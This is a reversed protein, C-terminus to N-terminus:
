RELTRSIIRTARVGTVGSVERHTVSFHKIVQRGRAFTLSRTKVSEQLRKIPKADKVRRPSGIIDKAAHAM